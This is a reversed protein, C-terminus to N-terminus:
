YPTIAKKSIVRTNQIKTSQIRLSPAASRFGGKWLKNQVKYKTNKYKTNGSPPPPDSDAKGYTNQVRYKTNQIELLPRRIPIRREM